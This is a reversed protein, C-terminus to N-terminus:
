DGRRRPQRVLWDIVASPDPEGQERAAASHPPEGRPIELSPTVPTASVTPQVPASPEGSTTGPDTGPKGPRGRGRREVGRVVTAGGSPPPIRRQEVRPAPPEPAAAGLGPPRIPDRKVMGLIEITPPAVPLRAIGGQEHAPMVAQAPRLSADSRSRFAYGATLGIGVGVLGVVLAIAALRMQRGGVDVLRRAAADVWGLSPVRVSRDAAGDAAAACEKVLAVGVAPLGQRDAIALARDCVENILRPIGDCLAAVERSADATFRDPDISAITLLHRIYATVEEAGLPGLECRVTARSTLDLNDAERLVAWLGSEGVLLISLIGEGDLLRAIEALVQPRLRQADDIVLLVRETRGHAERVFRALQESFAEATLLDSSLGFAEAVVAHFDLLELSPYPVKGVQIGEEALSEVLANTLISKGTGVEGVLLFLGHGGEVAASLRALADAYQGSRWLLKPDTTPQFAGILALSQGM